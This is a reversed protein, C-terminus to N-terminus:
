ADVRIKELLTDRGILAVADLRQKGARFGDGLGAVVPLRDLQDLVHLSRYEDGAGGFELYPEQRDLGPSAGPQTLHALRDLQPGPGPRQGLPRLERVDLAGVQEEPEADGAVLKRADGGRDREEVLSELEGLAGAQRAVQQPRLDEVPARPAPAALTVELGRALVDLARELEGVPEFVLPHGRM